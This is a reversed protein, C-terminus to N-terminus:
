EESEPATTTTTGTTTATTTTTTVTNMNSGLLLEQAAVLQPDSLEASFSSVEKM